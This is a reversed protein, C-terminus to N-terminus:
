NIKIFERDIRDFIHSDVQLDFKRAYLKQSKALKDFHSSTFIIPHTGDGGEWDIERLSNNVCSDKFKSNLIITLIYLEDPILTYKFFRRMQHNEYYTKLVYQACDKTISWWTKGGYIEFSDPIIRQHPLIRSWFLLLFETKLRNERYYRPAEYLFIKTTQFLSHEILRNSEIEPISRTAGTFKFHYRDLRYVNRHPGWPHNEYFESGPKPFVPFYELFQKGYNDKFFADIYDNSKIPYDQGSILNLYDFDIKNKLLYEIGNFIGKIIGFGNHTGDEQKCFFVNNYNEVLQKLENLLNGESTKSIHLVFNTDPKQLRNILRVVQQPNKHCTIIYALKM